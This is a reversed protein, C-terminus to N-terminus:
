VELGHRHSLRMSSEHVEPQRLGCKSMYLVNATISDRYLVM